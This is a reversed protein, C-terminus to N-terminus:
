SSGGISALLLLYVIGAIISMAVTLTPTNSRRGKVLNMIGTVVAILMIVFSAINFLAGILGGVTLDILLLACAALATQWGYLNRQGKDATDTNM